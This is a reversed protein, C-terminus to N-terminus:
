HQEFQRTVFAKLADRYASLICRSAQLRYVCTVELTDGIIDPDEVKIGQFVTTGVPTDEPVEFEYPVQFLVYFLM